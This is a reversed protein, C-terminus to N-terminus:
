SVVNATFPVQGEQQKARAQLQQAFVADFNIPSLILPQFGGRAILGSINERAYPFLINPCFGNFMYDMREKSFNMLTFIGAQNVEVLFATKDDIKATVTLRLVNEYVNESVLQTQTSMEFEVVPKWQERFMQPSNPTELSVDKTYIKQIAFKEQNDAGTETQPQDEM